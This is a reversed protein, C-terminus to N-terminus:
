PRGKWPEVKAHLHNDHTKVGPKDPTVGKIGPGNFYITKVGTARLADVLRQTGALDYKPDRFNVGEEKKDTRVPRIDIGLGDRHEGHPPFRGGDQLSINGVGFPTEVPGNSLLGAVATITQM